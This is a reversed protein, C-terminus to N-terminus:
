RPPRPSEGMAPEAMAPTTGPLPEGPLVFEAKLRALIKAYDPEQRLADLDRDQEMWPWDVYGHEVSWALNRMGERRKDSAARPDAKGVELSWTAYACAMNYYSLTASLGSRIEARYTAIAEQFRGMRLLMSAVEDGLSRDTLDSMRADATDSWIAGDVDGLRVLITLVVDLLVDEESAFFFRKRRRQRLNEAFKRDAEEKLEVYYRGLEKVLWADEKVMLEAIANAALGRIEGVEVLFRPPRLYQYSGAPFESPLKFARDQVIHILIHLAYERDSKLAEFQGRYYGTSGSRSKKSLFAAEIRARRLLDSVEEVRRPVQGKADRYTEVSESITEAHAVLARRIAGALAPDESGVLVSLLLDLCEKSGDSALVDILALRAPGTAGRFADLSPARSAPLAAVLRAAGAERDALFPSALAALAERTEVEVDTPPRSAPGDATARRPTPVFAGLALAVALVALSASTPRPSIAVPGM